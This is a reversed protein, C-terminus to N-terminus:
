TLFSRIGLPSCPADGTGAGRNASRSEPRRSPIEPRPWAQRHGGCPLHYHCRHDVASAERATCGVRSSRGTRRCDLLREYLDVEIQGSIMDEVHKDGPLKRIQDLQKIREERNASPQGQPFLDCAQKLLSYSQKAGIAQLAELCGRAHDGASNFLYQDVGGNMAEAEFWSIDWVYRDRRSAQRLRRGLLSRAHPFTSESRQRRPASVPVGRCGNAGEYLWRPVQSVWGGPVTARCIVVTKGEVRLTRALLSEALSSRGFDNILCRCSSGSSSTATGRTRGALGRSRRSSPRRNSAYLVSSCTLTISRYGPSRRSRRPLRTIGAMSGTNLDQLWAIEQKKSAPCFFCASKIPV